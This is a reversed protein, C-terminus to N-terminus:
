CASSPDHQGGHMSCARLATGASSRLSRSSRSYACSCSSSIFPCSVVTQRQPVNNYPSSVVLQQRDALPESLLGATLCSCWGTSPFSRCATWYPKLTRCPNLSM